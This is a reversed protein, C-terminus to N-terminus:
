VLRCPAVVWFVAMKALVSARMFNRTMNIAFDYLTANGFASGLGNCQAHVEAPNRVEVEEINEKYNNRCM